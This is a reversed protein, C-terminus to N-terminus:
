QDSKGLTRRAAKYMAMDVLRGRLRIAATGRDVAAEFAQVVESAWATEDATPAYIDHVVGIQGPHVVARARFGLGRSLRTDRALGETDDVRAYVGDVLAVQKFGRASLVTHQRAHLLEPGDISWGCGLDAMLDAGEAGGFMVMGVDPVRELIGFLRMVGLASEVLAGQAMGPRAALLAPAVLDAADEVKPCLMGQIGPSQIAARADDAHWPTAKGNIRVWTRGRMRGPIEPLSARAAEKCEDPVADELDLMVGDAASALAKRVLEPRHAPVFLWTKAHRDDNM